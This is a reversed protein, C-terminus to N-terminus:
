TLRWLYRCRKQRQSQPNLIRGNRNLIEERAVLGARVLAALVRDLTTHDLSTAPGLERITAPGQALAERVAEMRSYILATM